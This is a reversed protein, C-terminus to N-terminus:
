LLTLQKDTLIKAQSLHYISSRNLELLECQQRISLLPHDKEVWSKREDM